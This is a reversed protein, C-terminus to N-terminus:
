EAAVLVISILKSSNFVNLGHLYQCLPFVELVHFNFMFLLLHHLLNLTTCRGDVHLRRGIM